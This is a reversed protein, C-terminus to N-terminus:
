KENRLFKDDHRINFIWNLEDAIDALVNGDSSKIGSRFFCGNCESSIVVVGIIFTFFDLLRLPMIEYSPSIYRIKHGFWQSFAWFYSDCALEGASRILIFITHRSVDSLDDDILKILETSFWRLLIYQVWILIQLRCKLSIGLQLIVNNKSDVFIVIKM